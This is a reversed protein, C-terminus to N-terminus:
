GRSCIVPIFLGTYLSLKVAQFIQVQVLHYGQVLVFTIPDLELLLKVLNRVYDFRDFIESRHEMGKIICELVHVMGKIIQLFASEPLGDDFFNADRVTFVPM